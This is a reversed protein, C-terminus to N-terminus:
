LSILKLVAGICVFCILCRNRPPHDQDFSNFFLPEIVMSMLAQVSILSPQHFCQLRSMARRLNTLFPSLVKEEMDTQHTSSAECQTNEPFNSTTRVNLSQLIVNNFCMIWAWSAQDSGTGYIKDANEYFSDKDFVPLTPNVVRFYTELSSYLAAKPPLQPALSEASLDWPEGLHLFKSHDRITALCKQMGKNPVDDLRSSNKSKATLDLTTHIEALLSALSSSRSRQDSMSNNNDQLLRDACSDINSRDVEHDSSM